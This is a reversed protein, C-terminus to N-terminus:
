IWGEESLFDQVVPWNSAYPEVNKLERLLANVDGRRDVLLQPLSAALLDRFADPNAESQHLSDVAEETDRSFSETPFEREIMRLAAHLLGSSDPESRDMVARILPHDRNIEYRIEDKAKYRNWVPQTGGAPDLRGGKSRQVRSARRRLGSTIQKLRTRLFGPLQADSKDVTIKWMSDVSNPIEVAVRVLQSLEGHRLLRFWTGYMVLRDNRYVYFGQNKLLGEEGALRDLDSRRLKSYHPLIYPRITIRGTDGVDLTEVELPQTALHERHFPDISPVKQGNLVLELRRNNTATGSIYRHFTLALRDRTYAVLDNFENRGITRDESLRDCKYWIVETGCEKRLAPHCMDRIEDHSLVAMKWGDLDDLDWAAGSLEHGARSLVVLKRCQSFSASKLGWGFRGLDDPSREDSPNTSAPRMAAKLEESSMGEGDDLIRVEPEGDNYTCTVSVRVARAKISNDILDAVAAPLDYNGFSRASMMLSSADPENKVYEVM